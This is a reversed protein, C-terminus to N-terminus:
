PDKKFVHFVGRLNGEDYAVLAEDAEARDITGAAVAEDLRQAVVQRFAAEVREPPQDLEAGLDRALEGREERVRQPSPHFRHGPGRHGDGWAPHPGDWPSREATQALAFGGLALVAVLVIVGAIVLITRRKM